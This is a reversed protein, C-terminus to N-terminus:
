MLRAKVIRDIKYAAFSNDRSRCRGLLRDREINEPAVIESVEDRNSKVYQIEVEFEHEVAFELMREIDGQDEAPNPGAFNHKSMARPVATSVIKTIQSQYKQKVEDLQAVAASESAKMWTKFLPDALDNLALFTRADPKLRELLPTLREETVSLGRADRCESAYRVAAILTYMDERTLSLHFVDDDKVHVHESSLRPLFGLKQLERALRRVDVDANLMVIRHDIVDKIAPAIKKNQRIQELLPQDDVVIYGGAYGMNVEGHKQACDKILHTLSDPVPTRSGKKLFELIEECRLGRDLGDRVSEKTISLISMVDISKTTAIENLHYFTPLKLDPPVIVEHTPQVIFQDVDFQLPMVVNDDQPRFMETWHEPHHHFVYRGLDTFRFTFEVDPQKRPRGRGAGRAKLLKGDGERAGIVEFDHETKVGIALIGLWQLCEGVISEVVLENSRTHRDYPIPESRGPIEQEIRPLCEELFGNFNYWRDRPLENLCELVTRRFAVISTLGSPTPEVHVTNGDIFEENWETAKLWWAILEAYAGQSDELWALFSGAVRYSDGTSVLFKKEIAFLSLFEAYKATKFRSLSGLLKKLDNKGIGGTALVKVPQRDIMNCLVVLDRLLTNSNDMVVTPTNEKAVVTVADLEHFTRSDTEYHNQFIYTVDRPIMLLNNYKNGGSVGTFLLGSTTLLWQIADGRSHDYRRQVNLELLDRYVCVGKRELLLQMVGQSGVPLREMYGRLFKPDLLHKRLLWILYNKCASEPPIRLGQTAIHKLENNSLEKLFNGLYGEWFSPLEIYRLFPEPIGVLTLPESVEPVQDFFVIGREALHHVMSELAAADGDFYREAVEGKELDGGHIALFNVLNTEVSSLKSTAKEWLSRNQLRQYLNSILAAKQDEEPSAEPLEVPSINWHAEIKRLHPISLTKLISKLKM